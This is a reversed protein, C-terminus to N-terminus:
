NWNLFTSPTTQESWNALLSRSFQLAYKDDNDLNTPDTKKDV